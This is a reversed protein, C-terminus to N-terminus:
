RLTRHWLHSLFGVDGSKLPFLLDIQSRPEWRPSCRCLSRSQSPSVAFSGFIKILNSYFCQLPSKHDLAGFLGRMQIRGPLFPIPPDREACLCNAWISAARDIGSGERNEIRPSWLSPGPADSYGPCVDYTGTWREVTDIKGSSVRVQHNSSKM